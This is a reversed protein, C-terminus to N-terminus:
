KVSKSLVDAWIRCHETNSIGLASKLKNRIRGLMDRTQAIDLKEKYEKAKCWMYHKVSNDKTEPTPYARGNKDSIKTRGYKQFDVNPDKDIVKKCQKCDCIKDHFNRVSDLGGLSRAARLADRFLLRSHLAPLYFKATPVGGTVPIISRDEGYELSHTVAKLIGLHCLMVSFYGGYLNVVPSPGLKKIMDVFAELSEQSAEQESFSDIWILFIDPKLKSYESIISDVQKPTLLIKQSIVIQIGVPMKNRSAISITDKACDINTKLWEDLTNSEMYFYPSVILSPKFNSRTEKSESELFKYYKAEDKNETKSTLSNVQFDIVRECFSARLRNDALDKPLVVRKNDLICKRVPDGYSELLQRMTKRIKGKSKESTSLLHTTDHQFAHTQPDIFYPKNVARKMIFLTLADPMHAVMSANIVLQDYTSLFDGVLYKQDGTFGYRVVHNGFIGEKPQPM